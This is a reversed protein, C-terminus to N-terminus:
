NDELERPGRDGRSVHIAVLESTPPPQQPALVGLRRPDDPRLTQKRPLGSGRGLRRALIARQIEPIYTYHKKEKMTYVSWSKSKKNYKRRYIKQGDRNRAPLRQNHKNYDIAALLTRTKYVFPSYAMRKAAYMLIHNQFSELDSTTRFNIFKKVLTLWRKELVVATLAKHAASGQIIWPKDQSDEDLPEHECCSTAWSHENCVHHLVGVWMMRRLKKSLSKAAHWIDLSHQIGWAKYKGREPNLLATIQPHADTVVEKISLEPLLADMTRVFCEKEMIVSNKNTERKDVSVIHVVDRSDQEITTYTCFQACHGPSDMRGDGLLVVHDKQRLRDIVEARTKDWYEQVPEICYADQIRYFTSETVMGMSMFKFLLAVKRYNNGSLLINASLMFDGGQMGFKLTPQSNWKWISHGFPCLWELVVGTGRTKMAVQFPQAGSCAIGLVRDAFTCKQVPLKLHMALDLLNDNYTISATKGVLDDESLVKHSHAAYESEPAPPDPIDIDIVAEDVSIEALDNAKDGVMRLHLSPVFDEDSSDGELGLLSPDAAFEDFEIITNRFDNAGEEDSSEHHHEEISMSHMSTELDGVEGERSLPQVCLEPLNVPVDQDRDSDETISSVPPKPLRSHTKSPTSTVQWRKYFRLLLFALDADSKSGENDKLERWESFAQGINIRTRARTRDSARKRNKSEETLPKRQQKKGPEAM